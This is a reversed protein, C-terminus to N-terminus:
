KLQNHTNSSNDDKDECYIVFSHRLATLNYTEEASKIIEAIRNDSFEVITNTNKIHIHNHTADLRFKEYEPTEHALHHEIILGADIFLRITKYLTTKSIFQKKRKFYNLLFNITFHGDHHYITHLILNREYTNRLNHQDLYLLFRSLYDEFSYNSDLHDEM